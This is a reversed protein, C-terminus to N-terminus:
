PAGELYRTLVVGSLDPHGSLELETFANIALEHAVLASLARDHPDDALERLRVFNALFPPLADHLAQVFGTWDGGAGGLERGLARSEEPDCELGAEEVLSQLTGATRKEITALTRLTGTHDAFEEREAMRLFLAEGLLEGKYADLLLENYDSM